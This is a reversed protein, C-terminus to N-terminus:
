NAPMAVSTSNLPAGCHCMTVAIPSNVAGRRGSDNSMRAIYAVHLRHALCIRPCRGLLAVLDPVLEVEVGLPHLYTM